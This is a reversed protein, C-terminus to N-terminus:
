LNTMMNKRLTTLFDRANSLSVKHNKFHEVARKKEDQNAELQNLINLLHMKMHGKQIGITTLSQLAAFNNALGVSAAIMMLEKANPNGLLELGRKVLPHLSTLGGVVGLALPMTLSFIFHGNEVTVDSLSTYKGQRSAYAHGAAEVARFDNGTALVVADVGNYIGKNHTTARYVDLQAIRVAKQFRWVFEEATLGKAASHLAEIKSEVWVKVICGPTYNSLISMIIHLKREENDFDPKQEVWDTLILAMEEMCSNIFNAGMSNCTEFSAKLQYYDPEHMTMDVLGIDLIGGGRKQMNSTLHLTNEILRKKLEPFAKTLKQKDGHWLFHVQGIKETSIVETKFGGKDAWFKAAKSAAAVVSSEEIVVPVMYNKGNILVNPVVGFPLYFNTITNESFEDFRKQVDMQQHWYSMFEQTVQSPDNYQAAIKKLKDEKSLKSFGDKM